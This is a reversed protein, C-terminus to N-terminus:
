HFQHRWRRAKEDALLVVDIVYGKADDSKSVSHAVGTLNHSRDHGQLSIDIHLLEGVPLLTSSYLQLGRSSMDVATVYHKSVMPEEDLTNWTRIIAREEMHLSPTKRNMRAM